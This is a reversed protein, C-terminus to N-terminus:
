GGPPPPPASPPPPPPLNPAVPPPPLNAYTAQVQGMAQSLRQQVQTMADPLENWLITVANPDGASVLAPLGAGTIEIRGRPVKLKRVFVAYPARGPINVALVAASTGSTTTRRSHGGPDDGQLNGRITALRVVARLQGAPAPTAAARAMAEEFRGSSPTPPQGWAAAVRQRAAVPDSLTPDNAAVRDEISPIASWDIEFRDPKQRDLEIPVEMGPVLWRRDDLRFKRRLPTRRGDLDVMVEVDGRWLRLGGEPAVDAHVVLATLREPM